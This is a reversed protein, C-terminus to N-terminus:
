EKDDHTLQREHPLPSALLGAASASWGLLGLEFRALHLGEERESELSALPLHQRMQTNVLAALQGFALGLTALQLTDTELSSSAAIYRAAYLRILNIEGTLDNWPVSRLARTEAPTLYPSYLSM